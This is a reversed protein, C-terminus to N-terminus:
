RHRLTFITLGVGSGAVLLRPQWITGSYGMRDIHFFRKNKKIKTM